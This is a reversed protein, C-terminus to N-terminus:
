AAAVGQQELLEDVNVGQETLQKKLEAMKEQLKILRKAKGRDAASGMKKAEEAKTIFGAAKHEMEAARYRYFMEDSAFDRKKLAKFTDFDFNEPVPVKFPYVDANKNGVLGFVKRGGKTKKPKEPKAAQRAM